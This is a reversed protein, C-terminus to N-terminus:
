ASTRYVDSPLSSRVNPVAPFTVVLKSSNDAGSVLLVIGIALQESSEPHERRLAATVSVGDQPDDSGHEHDGADHRKDPSRDEEPDDEDDGVLM